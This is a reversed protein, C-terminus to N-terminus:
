TAKELLFEKKCFFSLGTTYYAAPLVTFPHLDLRKIRNSSTDKKSSKLATFRNDPISPLATRPYQAAVEKSVLLIIFFCIFRSRMHQYKTM